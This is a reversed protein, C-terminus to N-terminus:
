EDISQLERFRKFRKNMLSTKKNEFTDLSIITKSTLQYPMGRWIIMRMNRMSLIFIYPILIIQLIFYAQIRKSFTQLEGQEPFM